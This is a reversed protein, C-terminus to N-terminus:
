QRAPSIDALLKKFFSELAVRNMGGTEHEQGNPLICKFVIRQCYINVLEDEFLIRDDGLEVLKSALMKHM